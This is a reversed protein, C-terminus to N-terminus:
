RSGPAQLIEPLEALSQSLRAVDVGGASSYVDGLVRNRWTDKQKRKRMAAAREMKALMAPTRQAKREKEKALQTTQPGLAPPAETAWRGFNERADIKVITASSAEAQAAGSGAGSGDM